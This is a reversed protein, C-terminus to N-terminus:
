SCPPNCLGLLITVGAPVVVIRIAPPAVDMSLAESVMDIASDLINWRILATLMRSILYYDGCRTGSYEISGSVRSRIYLLVFV